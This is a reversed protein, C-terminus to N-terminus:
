QISKKKMYLVNYKIIDLLLSNFYFIETIGLISYLIMILRQKPCKIFM